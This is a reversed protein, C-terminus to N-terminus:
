SDRPTDPPLGDEPDYADEPSVMLVILDRLAQMLAVQNAVMQTMLMQPTLSPEGPKTLRGQSTLQITSRVQIDLARLCLLLNKPIM